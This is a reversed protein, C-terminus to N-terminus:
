RILIFKRLSSNEEVERDEMLKIELPERCLHTYVMNEICKGTYIRVPLNGFQKKAAKLSSILENITLPKQKIM